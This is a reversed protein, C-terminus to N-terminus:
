LKWKVIQKFLVDVLNAFVNNKTLTTEVHDHLPANSTLPQLEFISLYMKSSGLLLGFNQYVKIEQPSNKLFSVEM